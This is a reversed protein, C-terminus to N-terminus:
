LGRTYGNGSVVPTSNLEPFKYAKKEAGNNDYVESVRRFGVYDNRPSGPHRISTTASEKELRGATKADVRTHDTM